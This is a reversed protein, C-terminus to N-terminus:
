HALGNKGEDGPPRAFEKEQIADKKKHNEEEKWIMEVKLASVKQAARGASKINPSDTFRYSIM